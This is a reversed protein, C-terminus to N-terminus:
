FTNSSFYFILKWLLLKRQLPNNKELSFIETSSTELYVISKLNSQLICIAEFGMKLCGIWCFNGPSSSPPPPPLIVRPQNYQVNLIALVQWLEEGRWWLWGLMTSVHLPSTVATLSRYAPDSCLQHCLALIWHGVIKMGSARIIDSSYMKVTKNM